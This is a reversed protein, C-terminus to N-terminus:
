IQSSIQDSIQFKFDPIQFGVVHHDCDYAGLPAIFSFALDDVQQSFSEVDHDTILTAMVGAMRDLDAVLGEDKM